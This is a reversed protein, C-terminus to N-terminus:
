HYTPNKALLIASQSDRGLRVVQQEFGIDICLQQIQAAEKSAHTAVIYEVEITSLSVVFQKRRMWSIAGGFLRFVYGNTSRRGDIDRATLTLLVM